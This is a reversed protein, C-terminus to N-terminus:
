EHQITESVLQMLNNKLRQSGTLVMNFQNLVNKFINKLLFSKYHSERYINANILITHIGLKNAM